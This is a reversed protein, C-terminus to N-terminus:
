TKRLPYTLEPRRYLKSEGSNIRRIAKCDTGYERAIERLSKNTTMIEEIIHTIDDYTFKNFQTSKTKRIPYEEDKQIHLEGSNIRAINRGEVNFEKGIDEFSRYTTKLLTIIKKVDRKKLKRVDSSRIPYDIDRKYTDGRNFANINTYCAYGYKKALEEVPINTYKLDLTLEKVKEETLKAKYHNSGTAQIHCNGGTQINYGNPVRSNFLRIYHKELEDYDESKDSLIEYWFHEKGYEQIARDILLNQSPNCHIRFRVAVNIAQGIYVKNNIDNKIIYIYKEM